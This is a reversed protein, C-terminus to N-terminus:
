SQFGAGHIHHDPTVFCCPAPGQTEGLCNISAEAGVRFKLQTFVGVGHKYHDLTVFSCPAPVRRSVLSCTEAEARVRFKLQTSMERKEM